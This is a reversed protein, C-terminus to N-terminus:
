ERWILPQTAAMAQAFSPDRFGRVWARLLADRAGKAAKWKHLVHDDDLILLRSNRYHGAIAIQERYDSIHDHRGCVILMEAALENLKGLDFAPMPLEGKARLDLLPKAWMESVEVDPRFERARWSTETLIPAIFEYERVRIPWASPSAMMQMLADVQYDASAKKLVVEDSRALAAILERRAAALGKLDVFYNQRQLLQAYFTRREPHATIAGWLTKRDADDLEEWFRDHRLHLSAELQPLAAVESYAGHVHHGFDAMYTHLLYGGGSTGFILIKGDKGLLETRVRDIDATWQRFQLLRWGQEWDVTPTTPDGLRELLPKAFGRGPIGVINVNEGFIQRFAPLADPRIYFQQGDGVIFVTAKGPDIPGDVVLYDPPFTPGNPARHDLPVAIKHVTAVPTTARGTEAQARAMAPQLFAASAALAHIFTRRNPM